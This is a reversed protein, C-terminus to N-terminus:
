WMLNAQAVLSQLTIWMGRLIGMQSREADNSEKPRNALHIFKVKEKPIIWEGDSNRFMYVDNRIECLSRPLRLVVNEGMDITVDYYIYYNISKTKM